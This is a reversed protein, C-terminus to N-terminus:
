WLLVVQVEFCKSSMYEDTRYDANSRWELELFFCDVGCDVEIFHISFITLVMDFLMHSVMRFVMCSVLHSAM